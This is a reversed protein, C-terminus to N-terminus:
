PSDGSQHTEGVACERQIAAIGFQGNSFLGMIQAMLIRQLRRQRDAFVEPKPRPKEPLLGSRDVGWELRRRARDSRLWAEGTHTHGGYRAEVEIRDGDLPRVATLQPVFHPLNEPEALVEYLRDPAAAVHESREYHM